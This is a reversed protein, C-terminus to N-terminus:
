MAEAWHFSGDCNQSRERREVFFVAVVDVGVRAVHARAEDFYTM